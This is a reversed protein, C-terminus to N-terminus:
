VLNPSQLPVLPIHLETALASDLFFGLLEPIMLASQLSPRSYEHFKVPFCVPQTSLFPPSIKCGVQTPASCNGPKDGGRRNTSLPCTPSFNGREGCYSCLGLNRRKRREAEPLRVSGVKMPEPQLAPTAMPEPNRVPKKRSQLLNDLRIAMSILQDLSLNDDRCALELQVEERLGNRFVTVLALENWRTFAAITQFELAFVLATRAGQCLQLLCEGEREARWVIILCRASSYPLASM